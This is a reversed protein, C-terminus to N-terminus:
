RTLAIGIRVHSDNVGRDDLAEGPGTYAQGFLYFGFGLGLRALPYSVFLEASGRGTEFNGRGTVAVKIGDKQQIAATLSTYGWYDRLAPETGQNGVYFWAMPAIDLRWDNGLDFAKQARLFIRNVDISTAPGRGNSDHRYGLALSATEDVPVDAYVEPSYNTARFPGSPQDLAWFLTQTYAFRLNGLKLPAEEAFPRFAFSVQLKAGSDGLGAVGYIPEHPAFRDLFASSSGTSSATVTEGPAPLEAAAHADAPPVAVGAVSVPVYRAKAFGGPAITRKPGPVRELVLRTGDAATVELERPGEADLPADGENVLFVEVGRLAERESAVQEPVARLQQAAAPTAALLCVLLLLVRM